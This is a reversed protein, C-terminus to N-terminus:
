VRSLTTLLHIMKSGLKKPFKSFWWATLVLPHHDTLSAWITLHVAPSAATKANQPPPASVCPTSAVTVQPLSSTSLRLLHLAVWPARVNWHPHPLLRPSPGWHAVYAYREHKPPQGQVPLSASSVSIPKQLREQNVLGPKWKHLISPLITDIGRRNQHKKLKHTM